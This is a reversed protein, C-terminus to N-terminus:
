YQYYRCKLHYTFVVVIYVLDDKPVWRSRVEIGDLRLLAHLRPPHRAPHVRAGDQEEIHLVAHRLIGHVKLHLVVLLHQGDLAVPPPPPNILHNAPLGPTFHHRHM